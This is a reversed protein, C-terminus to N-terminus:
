GGEGGYRTARHGLHHPCPGVKIAKIIYSNYNLVLKILIKGERAHLWLM